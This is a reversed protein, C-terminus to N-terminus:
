NHFKRLLNCWNLQMGGIFYINICKGNLIEVFATVFFYLYAQVKVALQGMFLDNGCAFRQQM